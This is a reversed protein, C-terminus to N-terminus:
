MASRTGPSAMTTRLLTSRAGRFSHEFLEGQGGLEVQRRVERDRGAGALADVSQDLM